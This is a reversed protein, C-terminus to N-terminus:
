LVYLEDYFNPRPIDKLFQESANSDGYYKLLNGYMVPLVESLFKIQNNEKPDILAMCYEIQNAMMEERTKYPMFEVSQYVKSKSLCNYIHRGIENGSSLFNFFENLTKPITKNARYHSIVLEHLRAEVEIAKLYYNAAGGKRFKEKVYKPDIDTKKTDSFRSQLMHIHEHTIASDVRMKIKKMNNPMIVIEDGGIFSPSFYGGSTFRKEKKMIYTIALTGVTHMLALVPYKVIWIKKDVCKLFNKASKIEESSFGKFFDFTMTDGGLRFSQILRSFENYSQRIIGLGRVQVINFGSSPGESKLPIPPFETFDDHLQNKSSKYKVSYFYKM